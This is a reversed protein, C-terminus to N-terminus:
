PVQVDVVTLSSPVLCWSQMLETRPAGATSFTMRDKASASLDHGAIASISDAADFQMKQTSVVTNGGVTATADDGVHIQGAAGVQVSATGGVASEADRAVGVQVGSTGITLELLVCSNIDGSLCIYM